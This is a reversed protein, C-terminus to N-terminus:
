RDSPIDLEFACATCIAAGDNTTFPPDFIDGEKCDDAVQSSCTWTM